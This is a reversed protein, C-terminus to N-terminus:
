SIMMTRSCRPQCISRCLPAWTLRVLSPRGPSIVTGVDPRSTRLPANLFMRLCAPRLCTSNSAAALCASSHTLLFKRNNKQGVFVTILHHKGMIGIADSRAGSDVIPLLVCALGDFEVHFAEGFKPRVGNGWIHMDVMDYHTFDFRIDWVRQDFLLRGNVPRHLSSFSRSIGASARSRRM